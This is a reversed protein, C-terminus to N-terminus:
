RGLPMDDKIDREFDRYLLKLPGHVAMHLEGTAMYHQLADAVTTDRTHVYNAFLLCWTEDSLATELDHPVDDRHLGTQTFFADVAAQSWEQDDAEDHSDYM